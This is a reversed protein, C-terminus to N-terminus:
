VPNISAFISLAWMGLPQSLFLGVGAVDIKCASLSPISLCSDQFLWDM